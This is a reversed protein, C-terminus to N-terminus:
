DELPLTDAGILWFKVSVAKVAARLKERRTPALVQLAEDVLDAHVLSASGNRFVTLVGDGQLYDLVRTVDTESAGERELFPILIEITITRAM